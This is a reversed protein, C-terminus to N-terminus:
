EGFIEKVLPNIQSWDPLLVNAGENTTYSTTMRREISHSEIGDPGARLLAIGLRPWQWWPVNTDVESAAAAMMLPIRPWTKPHLMQKLIAKILLQGQEMRFFDDSGLRHRAFALAKRGTLHYEGETYGAMPKELVIDVGGMANVVSRVAEFRLRVYYDVDIGFNQRITEMTALPGSGLQQGEAYFHATNIRNEGVGPVNVWLDRPISLTAVKPGTPIITAMIITDSRSIANGPPAYDIGLVLLNTRIPAFAYVSFLVLIAILL